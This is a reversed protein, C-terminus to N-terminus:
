EREASIRKQHPEITVRFNLGELKEGPEIDPLSHHDSEVVEAGRPFRPELQLPGTQASPIFGKFCYNGREDSRTSLVFRQWITSNSNVTEYLAIEAGILPQGSANYIRGSIQATPALKIELPQKLDFGAPLDVTAANERAPDCVWLTYATTEDISNVEFNGDRESFTRKSSLFSKVPEFRVSALPVPSGDAALVQGLARKRADRKVPPSLALELGSVDAGETVQVALSNSLNDSELHTVV